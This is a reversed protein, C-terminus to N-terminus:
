MRPRDFVGPSAEAQEIMHVHNVSMHACIPMEAKELVKEM